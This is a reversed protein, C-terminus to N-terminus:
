LSMERCIMDEGLEQQGGYSSEMMIRLETYPSSNSLGCILWNGNSLQNIQMWRTDDLSFTSKQTGDDPDRGVLSYGTPGNGGWSEAEITYLTNSSRNYFQSGRGLLPSICIKTNSWFNYLIQNPM